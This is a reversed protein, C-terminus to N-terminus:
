GPPGDYLKQTSHDWWEISGNFHTEQTENLKSITVEIEIKPNEGDPIYYEGNYFDHEDVVPKQSLRDPGLVLNIAELITSKGTNNDGILVLHDPFFLNASKIGRFNSIKLNLVKM